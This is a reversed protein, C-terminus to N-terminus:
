ALKKDAVLKNVTRYFLEMFREETSLNNSVKPEMDCLCYDFLNYNSRYNMVKGPKVRKVFGFVDKNMEELHFPSFGRHNSAMESLWQWYDNVTKMLHSKFFNGNFFNGDFPRKGKTWQQSKSSSLHENLFKCFLTFETMPRQVIDRTDDYFSTFIMDEDDSAAGFEKYVPNLARGKSSQLMDDDMCCFDVVALAALLEIIHAKNKQTTGGESYEYMDYIDDALYYFTNLSNNGSINKDYYELAAKTKSIFTSSDIDNAGDQSQALNFYPLVTIAGIAADKINGANPQSMDIGRLNKLLLPFGSAGTGGFISSVIFIRDGPRFSNTFENFADSQAFQNLVVSGINPNGKFGVEMDSDLNKESFLMYALAQNAIDLSDFGMYKRFRDNRTNSLELRYNPILESIKTKFFRNKMDDSFHLQVNMYKYERLFSITRTLDAASADPDIFIPVIEDTHIEVGTALLMALSKMVRAGTGGICFIYTKM